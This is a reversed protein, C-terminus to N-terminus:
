DDIDICDGYELWELFEQRWDARSEFYKPFAEPDLILGVDRTEDVYDRFSSYTYATANQYARTTGLDSRPIKKNNTNTNIRVPNLHIYSFLYKLYEDSAVHKAKFDGEFLTGSRDYKKNYYMAYGTSVKRMFDSVGNEVKPTLLIHFHNSMLCYAGISVIQTDRTYSYLGNSRKTANRVSVPQTDNCLFLLAQVREYDAQDHCIIQKNTGRNYVHYFEGPVLPSLRYAM